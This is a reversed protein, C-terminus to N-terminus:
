AEVQRIKTSASTPSHDRAHWAPRHQDGPANMARLKAGRDAMNALWTVQKVFREHTVGSVCAIM